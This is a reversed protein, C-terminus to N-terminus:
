SRAKSTQAREQGIYGAQKMQLDGPARNDGGPNGLISVRDESLSVTHVPIPQWLLRPNWISIGEPPFLAALNTMASMLTRDM